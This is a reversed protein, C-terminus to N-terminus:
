IHVKIDSCLDVMDASIQLVRCDCVTLSGRESTGTYGMDIRKLDLNMMKFPIPLGFLFVKVNRISRLIAPHQYTKWSCVTCHRYLSRGLPLEVNKRITYCPNMDLERLIKWPSCLVTDSTRCRLLNTHTRSQHIELPLAGWPSTLM